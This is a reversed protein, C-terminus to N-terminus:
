RPVSQSVTTLGFGERLSNQAVITSARQLANVIIGNAALDSMPLTIIAIDASDAEDLALWTSALEALVERGEPDDDISGVAPGALVLRLQDLRRRLDDDHAHDERLQQKLMVFGRMLPLFGKLRDWRSVQTIVPRRLLGIADPETATGFRGDPQLRLVPDLFPELPPTRPQALGARELIAAVDDLPRNKESLPDLAPYIISAHAEFFAPVYEPASFVGHQYASAYPELFSWAARTAPTHEDLGIHCRWITTLDLEDRLMGALPMPQPDHVVLVDGARMWARLQDANDRNTQEYLERDRSTFNAGVNGHIMNHLRKTLAFFDPSATQIVVWETHIGLENLHAVMAPLMESVGGGQATSNVM